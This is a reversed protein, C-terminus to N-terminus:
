DKSEAIKNRHIKSRRTSNWKKYADCKKILKHLSTNKRRRNKFSKNLARNKQTYKYYRNTAKKYKLFRSNCVESSEDGNLNTVMSKLYLEMAEFPTCEHEGLIKGFEELTIGCINAYDDMDNTYEYVKEFEDHLDTKLSLDKKIKIETKSEDEFHEDSM